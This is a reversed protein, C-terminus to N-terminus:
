QSFNKRKGCDRSPNFDALPCDDCYFEDGYEEEDEKTRDHICKFDAVKLVLKNLQEVEECKNDYKSKPVLNKYEEQTLIYQM